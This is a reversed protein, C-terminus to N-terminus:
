GGKALPSRPRAAAAPTIPTEAIRVGAAHYVANAVAPATPITAPEGLGKGGTSNAESDHPDIPLVEQEAPM